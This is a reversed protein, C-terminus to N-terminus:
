EKGREDVEDGRAVVEADATAPVQGHVMGLATAEHHLQVAVVEVAARVRQLADHIGEALLLRCHHYAGVAHRVELQLRKRGSEAVM